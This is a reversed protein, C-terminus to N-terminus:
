VIFVSGPRSLTPGDVVHIHVIAGTLYDTWAQCESQLWQVHLIWM